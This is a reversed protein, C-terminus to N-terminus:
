GLGLGVEEGQDLVIGCVGAPSCCLWRCWPSRFGATHKGHKGSEGCPKDGKLDKVGSPLLRDELSSSSLDSDSDSDSSVVPFFLCWCLLDSRGAVQVVAVQVLWCRSLHSWPLYGEQRAWIACFRLQSNHRPCLFLSRPIPVAPFEKRGTM